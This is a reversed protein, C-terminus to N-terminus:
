WAPVPAVTGQRAVGGVQLLIFAVKGFCHLQVLREGTISRKPGKEEIQGTPRKAKIGRPM